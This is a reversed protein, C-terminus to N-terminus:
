KPAEKVEPRDKKKDPEDQDPVLVSEKAVGPIAQPTEPLPPIPLVAESVAPSSVLKPDPSVTAPIEKEAVRSKMKEGDDRNEPRLAQLTQVGVDLARIIAGDESILAAMGEEESMPALEYANAFRSLAVEMPRGMMVWPHGGENIEALAVDKDPNGIVIGSIEKYQMSRREKVIRRFILNENKM